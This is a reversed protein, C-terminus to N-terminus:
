QRNRRRKQLTLSTRTLKSARSAFARDAAYEVPSIGMGALAQYRLCLDGWRLLSRTTITIECPQQGPEENKFLKRVANAFTVMGKVVTEPLAPFKKQLLATEAKPDPYDAELVLFRDMFALNMQAVGSYFGTSDGNGASNGTCAIRFLPHPQVLEGGHEAIVLGSGDLVGNLAMIISPSCSDIEDIVFLGGERMARALPGDVWITEQNKLVFHGILDSVELRESGTVSYVPMNIRACVQRLCSSKGTGSPGFLYLPQFKDMLLWVLVDKTWEPWLYDPDTAPVYKSPEKFSGVTSGSRKGSFLAGIDYKKTEAM